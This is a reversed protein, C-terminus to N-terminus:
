NTASPTAGAQLVRNGGMMSFGAQHMLRPMINDGSSMLHPYYPKKLDAEEQGELSIVQRDSRISTDM